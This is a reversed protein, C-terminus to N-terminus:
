RDAEASKALMDKKAMASCKADHMREVLGWIIAVFAWSEWYKFGAWSSERWMALLHFMTWSSLDLACTYLVTPGIKM